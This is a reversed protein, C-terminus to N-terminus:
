LNGRLRSRGSSYVHTSSHCDWCLTILNCEDDARRHSSLERHHVELNTMSGCSQCRWGDGARPAEPLGTSSLCPVHRGCTRPYGHLPDDVVAQFLAPSSIGTRARSPTRGLSSTKRCCEWLPPRPGVPPVRPGVAAANSTTIGTTTSANWTTAPICWQSYGKAKLV